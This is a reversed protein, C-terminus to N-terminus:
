RRRIEYSAATAINSIGVVGGYLNIMSSATEAGILVARNNGSMKAAAKTAMALTLNTVAMKGSEKMATVALGESKLKNQRDNYKDLRYSRKALKVDSKYKDVIKSRDKMLKNASPEPAQGNVYKSYRQNYDDSLKDLSEWKKRKADKIKAKMQRKRVGWKMGKVGYHALYNDYNVDM